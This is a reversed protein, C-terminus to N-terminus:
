LLQELIEVFEKGDGAEMKGQSNQVYAIGKKVSVVLGNKDLFINVPYTKINLSNTYSNANAIHTFEFDRKKLFAQVQDKSQFNVAIFNIKDKFQEKIKNLAPMEEICPACTTFWFNILTPKGKLDNISILKGDITELSSMPLEKNIHKEIDFNNNVTEAPLIRMDWKYSFIISDETKSLQKFHDTISVVMEKQPYLNKLKKRQEEKMQHYTVTDIIKGDAKQIYKQQGWATATITFCLLLFFNIKKM